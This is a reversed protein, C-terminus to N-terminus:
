QTRLKIEGWLKEEGKHLLYNNCGLRKQTLWMRLQQEVQLVNSMETWLRGFVSVTWNRWRGGGKQKKTGKVVGFDQKMGYNHEQFHPCLYFICNGHPIFSYTPTLTIPRLWGPLTIEFILPHLNLLTTYQCPTTFCFPTFCPPTFCPLKYM